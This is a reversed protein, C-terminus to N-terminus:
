TETSRAEELLGVDRNLVIRVRIRYDAGNKRGALWRQIEVASRV